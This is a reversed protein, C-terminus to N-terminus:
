KNNKPFFCKNNKPSLANTIEQPFVMHSLYWFLDADVQM